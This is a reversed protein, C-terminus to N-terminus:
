SWVVEGYAAVDNTLEGNSRECAKESGGQMGNRVQRQRTWRMGAWRGHRDRYAGRIPGPRNCFAVSKPHPDVTGRGRCIPVVPLVSSLTSHVNRTDRVRRLAEERREASGPGVRLVLRM